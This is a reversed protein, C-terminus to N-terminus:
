QTISTVEDSHDLKVAWTIYDAVPSTEVYDLVLANVTDQPKGVGTGEPRRVFTVVQGVLPLLVARPGTGATSDYFGEIGSEGDLLGGGKVKAKKGYTTLDHKDATRKFDSKSCYQSIDDGDVIIVTDRTHVSAM